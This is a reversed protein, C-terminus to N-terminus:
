VISHAGQIYKKSQTEYLDRYAPCNEMLETHTGQILTGERTLYLVRDAVSVSALRHTIFLIAHEGKMEALTRFVEDEAQPDLSASPEDLIYLPANRYFM